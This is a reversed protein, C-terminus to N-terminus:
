QEAEHLWARGASAARLLITARALAQGSAAPTAAIPHAVSGKAPSAHCGGCRRLANFEAGDPCNNLLWSDLGGAGTTASSSAAAPQVSCTTNSGFRASCDFLGGGSVGPLTAVPAHHAGRMFRSWIGGAPKRRDHLRRATTMASGSEPSSHTQPRHVLRRPFRAPVPKGAASLAKHATGITLTEAMMLEDHKRLRTSSVGSSGVSHAYLLKGNSATIKEIVRPPLVAM